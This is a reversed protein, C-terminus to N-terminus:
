RQPDAPRTLRYTLDDIAADDGRPGIGSAASTDLDTAPHIFLLKPVEVSM